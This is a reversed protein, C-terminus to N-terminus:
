LLGASTKARGGKAKTKRRPAAEQKWKKGKKLKKTQLVQEEALEVGSKLVAVAVEASVEDSAMNSAVIRSAQPEGKAHFFRARTQNKHEHDSYFKAIWLKKM